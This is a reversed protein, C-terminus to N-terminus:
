EISIVSIIYNNTAEINELIGKGVFDSAPHICFLRGEKDVYSPWFTIGPYKQSKIGEVGTRHAIENGEKDFVAFSVEYSRRDSGISYKVFLYDQTEFISHLRAFREHYMDYNNADHLVGVPMSRDGFDLQYHLSVGEDQNVSYINYSDVSRYLVEDGTRFINGVFSYKKRFRYVSDPYNHFLPASEQSEIDMSWLPSYGEEYAPKIRDNEMLITQSNLFAISPTLSFPPGPLELVQIFNGKIDYLKVFRTDAIAVKNSAFDVALGFISTYESPGRGLKKFTFRYDGNRDYYKISARTNIMILSDNAVIEDVRKPFAEQRSELPIFEVGTAIDELLISGMDNESINFQTFRPHKTFLSDPISLNPQDIEGEFMCGSSVLLLIFAYKRM